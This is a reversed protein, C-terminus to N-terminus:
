VTCNGLFFYFVSYLTSGYPYMIIYWADAEVRTCMFYVKSHNLYIVKALKGDHANEVTELADGSDLSLWQLTSGHTVALLKNDPSIAVRDLHLVAGKSDRLPISLVKLCKPDEDLHYRVASLFPLCFLSCMFFTAERCNTEFGQMRSFIVM